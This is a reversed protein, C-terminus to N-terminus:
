QELIRKDFNYNWNDSEDLITNSENATKMFIYKVFALPYLSFFKSAQYGSM